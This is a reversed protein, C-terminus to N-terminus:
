HKVEVSEGFTTYPQGDPRHYMETAAILENRDKPPNVAFSQLAPPESVALPSCM